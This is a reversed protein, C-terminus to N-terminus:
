DEKAPRSQEGRNFMPPGGPWPAIARVESEGGYVLAPLDLPGRMTM